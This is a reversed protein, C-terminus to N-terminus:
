VIASGNGALAPQEGRQTIEWSGSRDLQLVRDHYQHRRHQERRCLRRQLCLSQRRRAQRVLRRGRPLPLCQIRPRRERM